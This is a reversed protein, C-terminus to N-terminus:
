LIKVAGLCIMLQVISTRTTHKREKDSTGGGYMVKDVCRIKKCFSLPNYTFVRVVNNEDTVKVYEEREDTFHKKGM